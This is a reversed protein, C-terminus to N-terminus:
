ARSLCTRRQLCVALQQLSTCRGHSEPLSGLWTPFLIGQIGDTDWYYTGKYTVLTTLVSYVARNDFVVDGTEDWALTFKGNETRRLAVDELM